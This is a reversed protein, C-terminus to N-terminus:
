IRKDKIRSDLDKEFDGGSGLTAHLAEKRSMITEYYYKERAIEFLKEWSIEGRIFAYYEEPARGHPFQRFFSRLLLTQHAYVDKEISLAIRFYPKGDRKGLASFGESLGGPGAFLDIVPITRHM